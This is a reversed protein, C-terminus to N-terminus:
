EAAGNGVTVINTTVIGGNLQAARRARAAALRTPIGNTSFSVKRNTPKVQIPKFPLRDVRDRLTDFHERDCM